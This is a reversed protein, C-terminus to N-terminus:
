LKKAIKLKASRARPNSKVEEWKPKITGKKPQTIIGDKAKQKFLERVIKDEMGQFSIVAVVGGPKLVEIAAEVGKQVNELEHNVAVRLAQFTKTAFHIKKKKYWNPVSFGIIEVLEGVQTVAKQRRAKVINEAIGDAFQEEGYERIIEALQQESSNNILEAASTGSRPDFRMDLFENRKFSFGRGSGEYHWSSLGLDFVIGDPRFDHKECINKLNVYSDNVLIFNDEYPSGAIKERMREVLEPDWDIGLVKGGPAVREALMMSHGGGNMTADIMMKGPQPDLYELIEKSLVSKHIEENM